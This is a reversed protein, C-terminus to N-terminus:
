KKRHVHRDLIADIDKDTPKPNYDPNPAQQRNRSTPLKGAHLQCLQADVSYGSLEMM